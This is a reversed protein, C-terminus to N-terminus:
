RGDPKEGEQGALGDRLEKARRKGLQEPERANGRACGKRYRGTEEEYYLGRLLIEEGQVQAYAAVPSSCGGDLERVFARECLSAIRNAM